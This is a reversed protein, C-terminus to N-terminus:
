SPPLEENIQSLTASQSQVINFDLTIGETGNPNLTTLPIDRLIITATVENALARGQEDLYLTIQAGGEETIFGFLAASQPDGFSEPDSELLMDYLRSTPIMLTIVEVTEGDLEDQSSSASDVFTVLLDPNLLPNEEDREGLVARAFSDLDFDSFVSEAEPDLEVFEDPFDAEGEGEVYNAKGYLIGDVFRLEVAVVTTIGDADTTTVTLQRSGGPNDGRIVTTISEEVKSTEEEQVVVGESIAQVIQTQTETRTDIYSNHERVMDVADLYRQVLALEEESLGDQAALPAASLLLATLIVVATLQRLNVNFEQLFRVYRL